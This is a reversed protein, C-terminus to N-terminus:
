LWKLHYIFLITPAKLASKVQCPVITHQVASIHDLFPTYSMHPPDLSLEPDIHSGHQVNQKYTFCVRQTKVCTQASM